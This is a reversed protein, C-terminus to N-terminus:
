RMRWVPLNVAGGDANVARLTGSGFSNNDSTVTYLCSGALLPMGYNPDSVTANCGADVSNVCIHACANGVTGCTASLPACVVYASGLSVTATAIGTSASLLLGGGDAQTERTPEGNLLLLLGLEGPPRASAVTACLVVTFGVAFARLTRM